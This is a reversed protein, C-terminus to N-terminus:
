REQTGVPERLARRELRVGGLFIEAIGQTDEIRTTPDGEVLLLDARKGEEVTGFDPTLHSAGGLPSSTWERM